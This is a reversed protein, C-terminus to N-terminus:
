DPLEYRDVGAVTGGTAHLILFAGKPLPRAAKEPVVPKGLFRLASSLLVPLNERHACV